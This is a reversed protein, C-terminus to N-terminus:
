KLWQEMDKKDMGNLLKGKQWSINPYAKRLEQESHSISSGGSTAFPIVAKGTFDYKEMFTNIIRPAQNWWIPFGLYVVKYNKWGSLPNGGIGPRSKSDKMEVSCRSSKNRWDLDASSYRKAPTIEYLKGGVAESLLRAKAATTGTASFYVVVIESSKAKATTTKQAFAVALTAIVTVLVCVFRKM